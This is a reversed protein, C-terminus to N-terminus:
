DNLFLLKRLHEKSIKKRFGVTYNPLFKELLILNAHKRIIM